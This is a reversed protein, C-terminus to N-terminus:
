SKGDLANELSAVRDSLALAELYPPHSALVVRAARIKVTHTASADEFAADLAKTAKDGLRLLSRTLGELAIQEAERLAKVFEDQSLWRYLTRRGVGALRAAEAVNGSALLSEIAKYQRPSLTSDLAM